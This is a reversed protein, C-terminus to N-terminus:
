TQTRTLVLHPLESTGSGRERSAIAGGSTSSLREYMACLRPVFRSAHGAYRSRAYFSPRDKNAFFRGWQLCYAQQKGIQAHRRTCPREVTEMSLRLDMMSTLSKESDQHRMRKRANISLSFGRHVPNEGHGVPLEKPANTLFVTLGSVMSLFSRFLGVFSLCFIAKRMQEQWQGFAIMM